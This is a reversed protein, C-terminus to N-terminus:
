PMPFHRANYTILDANLIKATAAIFCDALESGHSAGFTRRYHGALIAIESTVEARMANRLAWYLREQNKEREGAYLEAITIVSIVIRSKPAVGKMFGYTAADRRLLHIWVDTDIVSRKELRM